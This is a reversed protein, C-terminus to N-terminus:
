PIPGPAPAPPLDGMDYFGTLITPLGDGVTWRQRARLGAGGFFMRFPFIRKPAPKFGAGVPLAEILVQASHPM